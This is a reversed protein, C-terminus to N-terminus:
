TDFKELTVEGIGGWGCGVIKEATEHAPKLGEWILHTGYGKNRNRMGDCINHLYVRGSNTAQAFVWDDTVGELTDDGSVFVADFEYQSADEIDPSQEISLTEMESYRERIHHVLGGTDDGIILISRCDSIRGLFWDLERKHFETRPGGIRAVEWEVQQEIWEPWNEIDYPARFGLNDLFLTKAHEPRCYDGPWAEVGGYGGKVSPVGERLLESTRFVWYTGSFHWSYTPELPMTGYTRFAGFDIWLNINEKNRTHDQVGKGHGYITISDDDQGDLMAAAIRFPGVEGSATLNKEPKNQVVVYEYEPGFVDQVVEASESDESVSIGIIKRGNCMEGLERVRDIHKRWGPMPWIPFILNRVPEKTFPKPKPPPAALAQEHLRMQDRSLRLTLIRGDKGTQQRIPKAVAETVWSRIKAETMGLDLAQDVRVAIRQWLKPAQQPAREAINAVIRDMDNWVEDAAMSNLEEIM